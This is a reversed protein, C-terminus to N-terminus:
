RRMNNGRVALRRLSLLEGLVPSLRLSKCDQLALERLRTCSLMEVPIFKQATMTRCALLVSM